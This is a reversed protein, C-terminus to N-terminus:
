KGMVEGFFVWQKGDFRVDAAGLGGPIGARRFDPNRDSDAHAEHHDGGGLSHRLYEGAPLTRHSEHPIITFRHDARGHLAHRQREIVQELAGAPQVGFGPDDAAQGVLREGPM